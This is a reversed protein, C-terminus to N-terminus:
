QNNHIAANGFGDIKVVGDEIEVYHRARVSQYAVRFVYNHGFGYEYIRQFHNTKPSNMGSVLQLSNCNADYIEGGFGANIKKANRLYWCNGSKYFHKTKAILRHSLQWVNVASMVQKIRRHESGYDYELDKDADRPNAKCSNTGGGDGGGGDGIKKVQIRKEATESTGNWYNITATVNYFDNSSYQHTTEDSDILDNSEDGFSWKVYMLSLPNPDTPICQFYVMGEYGESYNISPYPNIPQCDVSAAKTNNGVTLCVTPVAKSSFDFTHKPNRETSTTGDGFDWLYEMQKYAESYSYNTFQVVGTKEDMTYTFDVHLSTESGTTLFFAEPHKSCFKLAKIEDFNNQKQWQHLEKLTKWDSHMIGIYYTDYFICILDDVIVECDPTLLARQTPSLIYHDDPDNDEPIGKGRQLTVLQEEIVTRLSNFGLKSEFLFAMIDEPMEEWNSYKSYNANKELLEDYKDTYALILDYVKNYDEANNFSLIGNVIKIPIRDIERLFEQAISEQKFSAILKSDYFQTLKSKNIPSSVTEEIKKCCIITVSLVTFISIVTILIKKTNIKNM